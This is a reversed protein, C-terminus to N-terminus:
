TTPSAKRPTSSIPGQVGRANRQSRHAVPGGYEPHGRPSHGNVNYRSVAGGYVRTLLHVVFEPSRLLGALM